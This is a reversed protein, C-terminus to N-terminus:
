PSVINDLILLKKATIDSTYDPNELSARKSIREDMIDKRENYRKNTIPKNFNSM